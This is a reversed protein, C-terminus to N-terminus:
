WKALGKTESKRGRIMKDLKRERSHGRFGQGAKIVIKSVLCNVSRDLKNYYFIM